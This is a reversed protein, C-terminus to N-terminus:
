PVPSADLAWHNRLIFGRLQHLHDSNLRLLTITFRASDTIPQLMGLEDLHYHYAFRDVTLDVVVAGVKVLEDSPWYDSKAMNCMHCAYRLNYFDRAMHPFRSQPHYHDVWFEHLCCYACCQRFDARVYPRFAAYGGSVEPPPLTREFRAIM